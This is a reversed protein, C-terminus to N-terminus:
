KAKYITHSQSLQRGEKQEANYSNRREAIRQIKRVADGVILDKFDEPLNPDLIAQQAQYSVFELVADDREKQGIIRESTEKM